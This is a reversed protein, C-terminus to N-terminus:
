PAVTPLAVLKGHSVVAWAPDRVVAGDALIRLQGTEGLLATARQLLSSTRDALRYADVGLAYLPALAAQGPGFAIDVENRVVSPYVQWPLETLRFGDLEALEVRTASGAAQSTAYVPIDTAFHFALAPNLGRAQTPDVFAAVAEVDGRRRPV